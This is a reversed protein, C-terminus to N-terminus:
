SWRPGRNFICVLLHRCFVHRRVRSFDRCRFARLEFQDAANGAIRVLRLRHSGRGGAGTRTSRRRDLNSGLLRLPEGRDLLDRFHTHALPHLKRQFAVLVLPEDQDAVAHAQHAARYQFRGLQAIGLGLAEGGHFVNGLVHQASQRAFAFPQLVVVDHAIQREIRAARHIYRQLQHFVEGHAVQPVERDVFFDGVGDPFHRHFHPLLFRVRPAATVGGFLLAALSSYFVPARAPADISDYIRQSSSTGVVVSWIASRSFFAFVMATTPKDSLGSRGLWPTAAYMCLWPYRMIGTFGCILSASPSGDYAESSSTGSFISMTSIKRRDSNTSSTTSWAM